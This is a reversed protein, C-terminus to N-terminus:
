LAGLKELAQIKQGFKPDQQLVSHAFKQRAVPDQISQYEWIRPDANQDFTTEAKSYANPNNGNAFQQLLNTKAQVMQYQGQLNRVAEQIAPVTMHANPNGAEVISRAADTGLGGQGLKAVIQNSYKGLLDTATKADQAGPIGVLSLLGNVYARKDAEAGTIAAPALSSINQLQSIVTQANANQDRLAGWRQQMQQVQGQAFQGQGLPPQAAMPASHQPAAGAQAPQGGGVANRWGPTETDFLAPLIRARTGPDSLNIPQNAPIGSIQAMAAAKAVPDNNGDGQPAWRSAIGSITNIGHKAGYTVLLKDAADVGAQPTDYKAFGGGPAKINGFNNNQIGVPTSAPTAPAAGPNAADAIQQQTQYVFGGQGDNATPDWVQQLQYGAKARAEAGYQAGYGQALQDAPVVKTTGTMPDFYIPTRLATPAIYNAKQVGARNAAQIEDPTMGGQSAMKTLDTPTLSPDAQAAIKMMEAGAPNGLAALRAGALMVEQPTHGGFMALGNPAASAGQQATTQPALTGLGASLGSMPGSNASGYVPTGQALTPNQQSSQSAGGFGVGFPNLQSQMKAMQMQMQLANGAGQQMGQFGAGLAQGSTVPLRSPGSASLLGGAMGLLGATQPNAFMGMMGPMGQQPAFGNMLGGATPDTPDFFGAM